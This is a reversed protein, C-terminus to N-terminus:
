TRSMNAGCSPCTMSYCPVGQQHPVKAGCKPCVCYGGIAAGASSGGMRGRGGGTGANRGKGSGSGAPGTGDGFPMSFVGKENINENNHENEKKEIGYGKGAGPICFSEKGVLIGKELKQIVEDVFGDVGTIVEIDFEDFFGSARTGMGGCIIKEVGKDHLFRPLLGPSHGPNELELRRIARGEEFDVFTYSPCRGFHESVYKGDTSIAIRM